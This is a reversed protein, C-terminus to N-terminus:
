RQYGHMIIGGAMPFLANLTAKTRGDTRGDTEYMAFLKFVWLGLTDFNPVFTGRRQHWKRVLKLTM